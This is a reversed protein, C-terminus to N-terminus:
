ECSPSLNLGVGLNVIGGPLSGPLECFLIAGGCVFLVHRGLGKAEFVRFTRTPRGARLYEDRPEGGRGKKNEKKM